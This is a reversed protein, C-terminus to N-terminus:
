RKEDPGWTKYLQRIIIDVGNLGVHPPFLGDPDYITSSQRTGKIHEWGVHSFYARLKENAIGSIAHFVHIGQEDEGIGCGMQWITLNEHWRKLNLSYRNEASWTPVPLRLDKKGPGGGASFVDAGRHERTTPHFPTGFGAGPLNPHAVFPQGQGNFMYVQCYSLHTKVFSKLTALAM